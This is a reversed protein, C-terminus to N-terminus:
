RKEKDYVKLCDHTCVDRSKRGAYTTLCEFNCERLKRLAKKARVRAMIKSRIM